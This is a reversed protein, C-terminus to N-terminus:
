DIGCRREELLRTGSSDASPSEQEIGPIDIASFLAMLM